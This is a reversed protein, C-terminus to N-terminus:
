ISASSPSYNLLTRIANKGNPQLERSGIGAWVGHPEPPTDIPTWAEGTWQYWGDSLMDFVYCECEGGNFRDIFMQTAWATGGTVIGDVIGAVAYVREADGVQYWNRRLLNQVYLSKPPFWRKVGASARKCPGDAAQLQEATLTVVEVKPATTRHGTFSWHIVQHGAMGATMGWQLDAGEAGGSLCINIEPNSVNDM